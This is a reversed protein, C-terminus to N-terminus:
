EELLRNYANNLAAPAPPITPGRSHSKHLRDSLVEDQGFCKGFLELLHGPFSFLTLLEGLDDLTPELALPEQVHHFRM